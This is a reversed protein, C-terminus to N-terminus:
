KELEWKFPEKDSPDVGVKEMLSKIDQEEYKELKPPIGSLRSKGIADGDNRTLLTYRTGSPTSEAESRFVEDFMPPIQERLKGTLFPVIMTAGTYENITEIEHCILVCHCPLSMFDDLALKLAEMQIQWDKQDPCEKRGIVYGSSLRKQSMKRVQEMIALSWTTASDLALTGVLDFFGSEKKKRFDREWLEFNTEKGGLGTRSGFMGEWRWDVIISKQDVYDKITSWGHRDFSQIYVPKPCTRLLATKGTGSKGYVMLNFTHRGADESYLRQLEEIEKSIELKM